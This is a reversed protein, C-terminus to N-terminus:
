AMYKVCMIREGSLALLTRREMNRQSVGYGGDFRDIHGGMHGNFSVLYM